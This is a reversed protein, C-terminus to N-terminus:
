VRATDQTSSARSKSVSETRFTRERRAHVAGEVTSTLPELGLERLMPRLRDRTEVAARRAYARFPASAPRRRPHDAYTDGVIVEVPHGGECRFCEDSQWGINTPHVGSVAGALSVCRVSDASGPGEVRIGRAGEPAMVSCRRNIVNVRLTASPQDFHTIVNTRAVGELALWNISGTSRLWSAARELLDYGDSLDEPHGYFVVPQGLYASILADTWAFRHPLGHRAFVPLGAPSVDAAAIGAITAQDEPWDAWWGPTTCLAEFGADVLADHVTLASL